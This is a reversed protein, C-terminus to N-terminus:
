EFSPTTLNGNVFTTFLEYGVIAVLAVLLLRTVWGLGNGGGGPTNGNRQRSGNPGAPGPGGRNPSGNGNNNLADARTVGPLPRGRTAQQGGDVRQGRPARSPVNEFMSAVVQKRVRLPWEPCHEDCKQLTM